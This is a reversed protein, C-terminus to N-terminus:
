GAHRVLRRRPNGELQGKALELSGMRRSYRVRNPTLLAAHLNASEADTRNTAASNTATASHAVALNTVPSLALAILVAALISLFRPLRM